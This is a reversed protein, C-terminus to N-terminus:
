LTLIFIITMTTKYLHDVRHIGITKFPHLFCTMADYCSYHPRVLDKCLCPSKGSSKLGLCNKEFANHYYVEGSTQFIVKRATRLCLFLTFWMCFLLVFSRQMFYQYCYHNHQFIFFHYTFYPVISSRKLVHIKFSWSKVTIMYKNGTKEYFRSNALLDSFHFLWYYMNRNHLLVFDTCYVVRTLRM